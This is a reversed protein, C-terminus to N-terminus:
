AERDILGALYTRVHGWATGIIVSARAVGARVDIWRYHQLRQLLVLALGLTVASMALGGTAAGLLGHGTSLLVFTLLPGLIGTATLLLSTLHPRGKANFAMWCLGAPGLFLISCFLVVAPGRAPRFAPGYLLPILIPLAAAAAIVMALSLAGQLLLGTMVPSRDSLGESRSRDIVLNQFPAAYVSQPLLGIDRINLAVSYLGALTSNTLAGVTLIDARSSLLKMLVGWQLRLGYALTERIGIRAVPARERYRRLFRLYIAIMLSQEITLAAIVHPYSAGFLLCAGVSLMAQLGADLNTLRAYARYDGAASIFAPLIWTPTNVAIYLVLLGQLSGSARLDPGVLLPLHPAVLTFALSVACCWAFDLYVVRMLSILSGPTHRFHYGVASPLGLDNLRSIIAMLAAITALKGFEAVGLLRALLAGQLFRFFLGIVVGSGLIGLQASLKRSV